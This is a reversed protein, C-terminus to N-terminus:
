VPDEESLGFSRFGSRGLQLEDEFYAARLKEENEVTKSSVSGRKSRSADVKAASLENEEFRTWLM